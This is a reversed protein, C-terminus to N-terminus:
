ADREIRGSISRTGGETYRTSGFGATAFPGCGPKPHFGADREARVFEEATVEREPKDDIKVFYREM